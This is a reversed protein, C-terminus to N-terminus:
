DSVKNTIKKIFINYNEENLHIDDSLWINNLNTYFKKNQDIIQSFNIHNFKKYNTILESVVDSVDVPYNITTLQKKHPHTIIFVKEIFKKNNVNDFLRKVTKKFYAKEDTNMSIKYNEIIQWHCKTYKTSDFFLNIRKLIKYFSKKVKYNIYMQNKILKNKKTFEIESFMIKEHLNFVDNYLPFEEMKVGTLNGSSNIQLLNKYRCLEDGMDTQDIYIVIVSPKIKFDNIIIDLQAHILSPSYSGTGANIIKSFNKLNKKIIDQSSKFENMQEFWSDGQFLITEKGIEDKIRNLIMTENSKNLKDIDYYRVHNLKQSYKKYVSLIEISNFNDKFEKELNNYFYFFILIYSILFSLFITSIKFFLSKIEFKM